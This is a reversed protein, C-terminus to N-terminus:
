KKDYFLHLLLKTLPVNFLLTLFMTTLMLSGFWKFMNTGMTFLILAILGTSIQGDRIATRSRNKATDIASSRSKGEKREELLREYILINADVAMGISLIIAAIGSLSLAYDSLKMLAFLFALFSTLVLSTLVMKKWGYMFYMLIAIAFFGVLGARLSGTLANIGLTPSIKEEQMLILPAPMAGDNLADALQKSTESTFSGNIQATGGCIKSQITPATLLNGGVFIAMPEGIHNQTINCFIEKGADDLNITVVPEGVDSATTGAYKFYAGNLMNKGDTAAIWTERDQVFIDEIDYVTQQQGSITETQRANVRFMVYWMLDTKTTTAWKGQDTVTEYKGELLSSLKGLSAKELLSGNTKYFAPLQDLTVGTFHNYFINESMRGEMLKAIITPTKTIEALIDQALKKRAAMTTKNLTEKTQLKFELELTKGILDKAQDLDAIGGIEIVIYRQGDMNQIYSKYDSVGLKSIRNDIKKSIIDEINKKIANLELANTYVKEYKDYSIKYVLRTGGSVDLWKRFHQLGNPTLTLHRIGTSADFSRGVFFVFILSLAVIGAFLRKKDIKM